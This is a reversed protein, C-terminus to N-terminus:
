IHAIAEDISAVVKISVIYDLYETDWDEDVAPIMGPVIELTRPCGRLEVGADALATCVAPLLAAAAEEHVLITEVTNCASVYQTKADVAVTAAMQVDAEKDLYIHCIGASHGMVPITTNQQIYKVFSNSGRPIILDIYESLKLMEGVDERTTLLQIWGGPVGAEETAKSLVGALAKNTMLAERGGKLLVANGSKLCLSAIQVLADPRSEFITGIVGIPCSYRTLRLGEALMTDTMVRSLPDPLEILSYLGDIVGQLKGEDFVLRKLVAGTIGEAEANALDQKNADIIEDAHARLAKAMAELGRNRVEIPSGALEISANRASVACDTINM